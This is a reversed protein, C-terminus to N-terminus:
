YDVVVDSIIMADDAFHTGHEEDFAKLTKKAKELSEMFKEETGERLECGICEIYSNDYDYHCYNVGKGILYTQVEEALEDYTLDDLSNDKDLIDTVTDYLEQLIGSNGFGYVIYSSSSSNSVFGNRIKM